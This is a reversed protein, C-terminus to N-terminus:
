GSHFVSPLARIPVWPESELNFFFLNSQLSHTLLPSLLHCCILTPWCFLHVLQAPLPFYHIISITTCAYSHSLNGIQTLTLTLLYPHPYPHIHFFLLPHIRKLFLLNINPCLVPTTSSHTLSSLRTCSFLCFNIVIKLLRYSLILLNLTHSYSM